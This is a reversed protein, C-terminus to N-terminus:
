WLSKLRREGKEIAVITTRAVKIIKAAEAQTMGCQKRAQQLREGLQNLNIKNLVNNAM